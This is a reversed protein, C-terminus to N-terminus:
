VRRKWTRYNRVELSLAEVMLRMVNSSVKEPLKEAQRLRRRMRLFYFIARITQGKRGADILRTATKGLKAWYAYKKLWGKIEKYLRENQMGNLLHRASSEMESFTHELIEVAKQQDGHFFHYRFQHLKELLQPAEEDCLFSARVHDAFLLFADLDESGAIEKVARQFAEEPNYSDPHTLYEGITMIPIKSSEPYEMANAVYGTAFRFLTADRNQLPGIHLESSMALDNVPYNDWYLPYHRTQEFFYQSDAETLYPSCVFRGTWFLDIETPLHQGLYTIYAEDGRGHYVTPCVVLHIDDKSTEKLKNWVLLTVQVHAEALHIFAEQDSKHMLEQPIDDFLLAFKTVGCALLNEYKEILRDVHKSNAYQMSMGPSLCYYFACGVSHAESILESILRMQAPSHHMQWDDRLIADDKPAYFYANFGHQSIFHLMDIREEHSWPKGYFGEILGRLAFGQSSM